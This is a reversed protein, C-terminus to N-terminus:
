KNNAPKKIDLISPSKRMGDLLHQIAIGPHKFLMRPGAYRMVQRVAERMSKKYCHTQCKACTPKKEQYRCKELRLHAYERLESCSECLRTKTLHKDNCYMEVMYDITKAERKIRRHVM